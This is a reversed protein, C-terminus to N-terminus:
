GFQKSMPYRRRSWGLTFRLGPRAVWPDFVVEGTDATVYRYSRVAVDLSAEIRLLLRDLGRGVRLGPGLRLSLDGVVRTRPDFASASTQEARTRDHVLDIGGGASVDFSWRGGLYLDARVLGRLTAGTLTLALPQGEVALPVLYQMELAGGLDLRGLGAGIGVDLLPGHLPAVPGWTRAAYGVSVEVVPGPGAPEVAPPEPEVGLQEAAVDRSVGIQGGALLAEVSAEVIYGIEDRAVEDLGEALAVTRILVREYAADIVIIRARTPDVVDIWVRAPASAPVDSPSVVEDLAITDVQRLRTPVGLERTFEPLAGILGEADTTPGAVTIEVAPPGEEVGGAPARGVTLAFALGAVNM